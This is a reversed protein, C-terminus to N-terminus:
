EFKLGYEAFRDEISRDLVNAADRDAKARLSDGKAAWALSRGMRSTPNNNKAIARDYAAIAEDFKGQRLLVM